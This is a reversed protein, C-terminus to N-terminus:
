LESYRGIEILASREAIRLENNLDLVKITAKGIASLAIIEAGLLKLHDKWRDERPNFLRVFEKGPLLVTGIDTGKARNCPACSYALNELNDGGGHKISIIHDIQFSIYSDEEHILCYECRFDARIAVSKRVEPSINRSM